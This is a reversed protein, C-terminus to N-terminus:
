GRVRKMEETRNVTAELTEIYSKFEDTNMKSHRGDYTASIRNYISTKQFIVFAGEKFFRDVTRGQSYESYQEYGKDHELLQEYGLSNRNIIPDLSSIELRFYNWQADKGISEFLLRKPKVIDMLGTYLAICDPETALEVKLLDMGGGGPYFMHNLNPISGIINLVNIIDEMDEWIVRSPIATPFLEEQIRRWEYPNRKQFDKEHIKWENLRDVFEQMTPRLEAEDNTCDYLLKDLPDRFLHLDFKNLSNKGLRSYQGDFGLKEGTLIIWMTKALSYVDAKKGDAVQPSRRMEPAMTWKPGVSEFKTTVDEKDPYDVLGFDALYYENDYFLINGPKIDRHVIGKKHLEMLVKGIHIILDIKKNGNMKKLHKDISSAIPMVYWSVEHRNESLYFDYIPLIGNLTNNETIIKIEAKFRTLTKPSVKKLLKIACQQQNHNNQAIWVEGNGGQNIYELLRWDGFEMNARFKPKM